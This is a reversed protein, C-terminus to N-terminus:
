HIDRGGRYFGVSAWFRQAGGIVEHVEVEYTDAVMRDAIQQAELRGGDCFRPYAMIDARCLYDQEAREMSAFLGTPRFDRLVENIERQLKLGQRNIIERREATMSNFM